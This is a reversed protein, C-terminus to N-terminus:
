RNSALPGYVEVRTKEDDMDGYYLEIVEVGKLRKVKPKEIEAFVRQRIAPAVKAGGIDSAMFAPGKLLRLDFRQAPRHPKVKGETDMLYGIRARFTKLGFLEYVVVETTTLKFGRKNALDEVERFAEAIYDDLDDWDGAKTATLAFVEPLKTLKAPTATEQMGSNQPSSNQASSSQAWSKQAWSKQAWAPAVLLIVTLAFRLM